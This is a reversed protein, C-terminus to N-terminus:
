SEITHCIVRNAIMDASFLAMIGSSSMLTMKEVNIDVIWEPLDPASAHILECAIRYGDVGLDLRDQDEPENPGDERSKICKADDEELLSRGSELNKVEEETEAAGSPMTAREETKAEQELAKVLLARDWFYKRFLKIDAELLHESTHNVTLTLTESSHVFQLSADENLHLRSCGPSRREQFTPIDGVLTSYGSHLALDSPTTGEENPLELAKVGGPLCLLFHFLKPLGWRVALHLLSERRLTVELSANGLVTWGLPLELQTLALVLEEDLAPLADATLAFPTLLTQHSCATLRDAQTVLLRALRCAMNDVYTVSGSGMTVPSYGESCLCVSVMVTEQLWHGPISSQLVNDEIREAIVVHRQHSGDYIFYFEADEPLYVNRGFKAYVTRQGYLPVESCSLEM